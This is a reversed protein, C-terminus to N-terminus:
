IITLEVDGNSVEGAKSCQEGIVQAEPTRKPATSVIDQQLLLMQNCRLNSRNCASGSTNSLPTMGSPIDKHVFWLRKSSPMDNTM